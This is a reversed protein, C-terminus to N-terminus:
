RQCFDFPIKNIQAKIQNRIETVGLTKVPLKEGESPVRVWDLFELHAGTDVLSQTNWNQVKQLHNDDQTFYIWLILM